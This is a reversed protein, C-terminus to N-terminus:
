GAIWWRWTPLYDQVGVNAWERDNKREGNWNFFKGNGLNFHTVFPEDKLDWGLTSKATMMPSMGQFDFNDAHYSLADGFEPCNAPNRTGGTFWREIRQMYTRQKTEPASGKEGRSEWFMNRAHAGWLGIGLPYNKLKTWRLGHHPEGGQMNIGCYLYQPDRKMGEAFSKSAQLLNGSNWNYNFFLSAREQGSAGFNEQNRPTLGKDFSTYGNSQTGDYWMNEFIPNTKKAEKVLAEHLTQLGRVVNAAGNWESNYGLGDIGYYALFKATKTADLTGYATLAREWDSSLYGFPVSAVSSVAVGNKHAVDLLAAPIRGLPASWDGWHDVYQWMSFVESDFVGDPLANKDPDDYPLWAVLRKDNEKKM